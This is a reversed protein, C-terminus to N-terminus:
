WPLTEAELYFRECEPHLWVAGELGIAVQRERGDVLGRCQACTRNGPAVAGEYHRAVVADPNADTLAHYINAKVSNPENEVTVGHM